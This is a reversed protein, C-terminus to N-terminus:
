GAEVQALRTATDAPDLFADLALAANRRAERVHPAGRPPHHTGPRGCAV